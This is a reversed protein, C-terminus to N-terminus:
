PDGPSAGPSSPLSPFHESLAGAVRETVTDWRRDAPQRFLRATPYWPTDDRMQLWRWDNAHPLLIWAPKGAAGALHAVATDVTIVLDLGEIIALSDAFDAIEPGLNILPAAGFYGGAQAQPPGKQLSVFTIGGVETIPALAKLSMSRNRDNRHTPRGAWALGIRRDGPACLADLRAAWAGARAPDAKLYPGPWPITGLRSGHLRPLGSLPLYAQAAPSAEWRDFMTAVGPLQGILPRLEASCAVVVERCREAAWPIYRSFQICDGFGQDAILLLRGDLLPRGDWQPTDAKPMLAPVGALKFRWEYEEWGREFEGTLLLAEALGFHAGPLSPHGKLAREACAIAEAPEAREYHLVSLNVQAVPDAPDGAVAKRGAELAEDYRGLTRYVECLNRLYLPRPAGLTLSREMLRAGEDWRGKRYTIVGMMHTAHADDPAQALVQELCAQAEDLRGAQDHEDALRLLETTPNPAGPLSATVSM